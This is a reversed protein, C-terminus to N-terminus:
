GFSARRRRSSPVALPADDGPRRRSDSVPEPVRSRLQPVLRVLDGGCRAAHAAIADESVADVIQGLLGRFPQFPEFVFETCRDYFVSWGPRGTHAAVFAAVLSTKGIGAEGSVLVVRPGNQEADMAADVLAALERRRGVIPKAPVLPAPVGAASRDRRLSRTAEPGNPESGDWGAAISQEVQRLQDSPETGAQEVLFSRYAQYSRLAETQRGAAALARMLLERPRDRFENGVIHPELLAIAEASRDGRLLADALDEVATARVEGLRAAEGQAWGEDRFEDLAPGVWRDLAHRIVVPDGDALRLEDCALVADVGMGLRYGTATTLLGEAGVTRRLRAVIQRLAGSSVGLVWCLWEGRVPQPGHVALAALLRRQSASPVDVVRDPAVIQVPGLIRM